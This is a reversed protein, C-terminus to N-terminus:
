VAARLRPAETERQRHNGDCGCSEAFYRKGSKRRYGRFHAPLASAHMRSVACSSVPVAVIDGALSSGLLLRLDQFVRLVSLKEPRNKANKWRAFNGAEAKNSAM